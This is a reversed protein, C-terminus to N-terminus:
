LHMYICVCVYVYIYTGSLQLSMKPSPSLVECEGRLQCKLTDVVGLREPLDLRDNSIFSLQQVFKINSWLIVHPTLCQFGCAKRVRHSSLELGM